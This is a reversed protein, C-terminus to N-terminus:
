TVSFPKFSSAACFSCHFAKAPLTSSTSPPLGAHAADLLPDNKRGGMDSERRVALRYCLLDPSGVFIVPVRQDLRAFRSVTCREKRQLRHSVRIFSALQQGLDVFGPEAPRPLHAAPSRHKCHDTHHDAPHNVPIVIQLPDPLVIRLILRMDQCFLPHAVVFDYFLSHLILTETDSIVADVHCVPFYKVM